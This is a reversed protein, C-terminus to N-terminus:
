TFLVKVVHRQITAVQQPGGRQQERARRERQAGDALFEGVPV